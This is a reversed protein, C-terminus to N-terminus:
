AGKGDDHTQRKYVDTERDMWSAFRTNWYAMPMGIAPFPASAYSGYHLAMRNFEFEGVM